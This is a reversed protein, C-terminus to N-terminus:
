CCTSAVGVYALGIKATFEATTAAVVVVAVTLRDFTFGACLELLLVICFSRKDQCLRLEISFLCSPIHGRLLDRRGLFANCGQLSCNVSSASGHGGSSGCAEYGSCHRKGNTHDLCCKPACQAPTFQPCLLHHCCCCCCCCSLRRRCPRRQSMRPRHRGRTRLHSEVKAEVTCQGM